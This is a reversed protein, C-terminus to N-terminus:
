LRVKAIASLLSSNETIKLYMTWFTVLFGLNCTKQRCQNQYSYVLCSAISEKPKGLSPANIFTPLM